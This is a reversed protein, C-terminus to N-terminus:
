LVNPECLWFFNLPYPTLYNDFPAYNEDGKCCLHRRVGEKNCGIVSHQVDTELLGIAPTVTALAEVVDCLHLEGLLTRVRQHKTLEVRPVDGLLETELGVRTRVVHGREQIRNACVINTSEQFGDGQAPVM